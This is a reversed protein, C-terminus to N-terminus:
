AAAMATGTAASARPMAGSSAATVGIAWAEALARSDTEAEFSEAPSAFSKRRTPRLPAYTMSALSLLPSKARLAPRDRIRAELEFSKVVEGASARKPDVPRRWVVTIDLSGIVSLM